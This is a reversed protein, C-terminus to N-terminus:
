VPPNQVVKGINRYKEPDRHENYTGKNRDPHSQYGSRQNTENKFETQIPEERATWYSDFNSKAFLTKPRLYEAMAGGKWKTVQRLIMKRVGDLTVEPENLRQSILSLNCDLERYHLGTAENLIHLVSRSDPHYGNKTEGRVSGEEKEKDKGKGKGTPIVYGVSPYHYGLGVRKLNHTEILRIVSKHPPCQPSLEGYQFNIFKPLIYRNSVILELRDGLEEINAKSITQGCDQSALGLDIEVMGVPDCHDCLYTWLQKAPSSLRRFWPDSWKNTDTFRKVGCVRRNEGRHFAPSFRVLRRPLVWKIPSLASIDAAYIEDIVRGEM